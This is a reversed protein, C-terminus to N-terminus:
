CREDYKNLNKILKPEFRGLSESYLARIQDQWYIKSNPVAEFDNKNEFNQKKKTLSFCYEAAEM